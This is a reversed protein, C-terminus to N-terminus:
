STNRREQIIMIIKGVVSFYLQYAAKSIMPLLLFFFLPKLEGPLVEDNKNLKDCVMVSRDQDASLFQSTFLHLHLIRLAEM